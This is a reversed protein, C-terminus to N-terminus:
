KKLVGSNIEDRRHISRYRWYLIPGSQVQVLICFDEQPNSSRIPCGKTRHKHIGVYQRRQGRDRNRRRRHSLLSRHHPFAHMVVHIAPHFHMVMVVMMVHHSVHHAFAHLVSPGKVPAM